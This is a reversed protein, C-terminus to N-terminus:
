RETRLQKLGLTYTVSHHGQPWAPRTFGCTDVHQHFGHCVTPLGVPLHPHVWLCDCGRLHKPSQIHGGIVPCIADEGSQPPACEPCLLTLQELFAWAIHCEVLLM